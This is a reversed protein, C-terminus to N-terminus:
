LCAVGDEASSDGADEYEDGERDMDEDEVESESFSVGVPTVFVYM